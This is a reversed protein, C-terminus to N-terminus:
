GLKATIAVLPIFNNRSHRCSKQLINKLRARSIEIQLQRAYQGKIVIILLNLELEM